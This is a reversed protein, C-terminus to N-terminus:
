VFNELINDFDLFNFQNIHFDLKSDAEINIEHINSWIGAYVNKDPYKEQFFDKDEQLKTVGKGFENNYIPVRKREIIIITEENYGFADVHRSAGDDFQINANWLTNRFGVKKLKESAFWEMFAGSRWNEKVPEIKLETINYSASRRSRIANELYGEAPTREERIGGDHNIHGIVYKCTSLPYIAVLLTYLTKDVDCENMYANLYREVSKYLRDYKENIAEYSTSEDFKFIIKEQDGYLPFFLNLVDNTPPITFLAGIDFTCPLLSVIKHMELSYEYAIKVKEGFINDSIVRSMEGWRPNEIQSHLPVMNPIQSKCVRRITFKNGANHICNDHELIHNLIKSELKGYKNIEIPFEAIGEKQYTYLYALIDEKAMSQDKLLKRIFEQSKRYVINMALIGGLINKNISGM